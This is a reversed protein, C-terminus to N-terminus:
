QLFRFEQSNVLTWVLDAAASRTDDDLDKQWARIEESRPERSLISRYAIRLKDAARDAADISQRLVSGEVLLQNDVVGNMLRLAQPVNADVSSSEIQDRDSQGFERLLHGPRAPQALDSARAIEPGRRLRDRAARARLEAIEAQLEAVRKTDRARRAASMERALERAKEAPDPADKDSTAREAMSEAVRMRRYAAPDSYRLSEKEILGRVDDKAAAALTEYQRYNPEARSGPARLTGDPDAVALTLLSDWLQEASLRRLVPGAFLFPEISETPVVVAPRDFIDLRVLVREFARMDYDFERMLEELRAFVAPHSPRTDDRFEDVPEVLGRGFVERWLRNVIVKTFRPNEPSTVWAAFADRSDVDAFSDAATRERQGNGGAPRRPQVRGSRQPKADPVDAAQGFPVKAHVISGPKADDYKYDKPLAIVATGKGSIGTAIQRTLLQVARRANEGLDRQADRAQAAIHRVDLGGSGPEAAYRMGGVFAALEYFQRQTWKDFPHDHCQACEMRTGLFVRMTNSMNDLPMGLDRLFYGTAGNDRANAPGEATLMRRVFEDYPLNDALAEEVFAAYPEGSQQRMLQSRIRLIDAWVNFEHSVHGRSELLADCLRDRRDGSRNGLFAALEEATPIRGALTLYARRCFTADDITEATRAGNTAFDARLLADIERAAETIQRTTPAVPDQTQLPALAASFVLLLYKPLKMVRARCTPVLLM